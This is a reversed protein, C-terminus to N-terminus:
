LKPIFEGSRWINRWFGLYLLSGRCYICINKNTQGQNQAPTACFIVQKSQVLEFFYVHIGSQYKIRHMKFITLKYIYMNELATEEFRCKMWLGGFLKKLYRFRAETKSVSQM